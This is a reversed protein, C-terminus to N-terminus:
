TVDRRRFAALAAGGILVVYLALRVTGSSASVSRGNEAVRDWSYFAGGVSTLMWPILNKAQVRLIAEIVVLYGFWVGMAAATNRGLTALAASIAAIVGALVTGRLVVLLLTRWFDSTAGATSGNLAAGLVWGGIFVAHVVVFLLMGVIVAAGIRALLLRTRRPEWTLITTVTGARYEAGVASAGLLVVLLYSLM